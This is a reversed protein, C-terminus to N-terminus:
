TNWRAKEISTYQLKDCLIGNRRPITLIIYLSINNRTYSDDLNTENNIIIKKVCQSHNKGHM